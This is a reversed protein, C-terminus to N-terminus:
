AAPTSDFEFTVTQFADSLTFTEGEAFNTGNLPTLTQVQGTFSGPLQDVAIGYDGWPILPTTGASEIPGGPSGAITLNGSIVTVIGPNDLTAPVSLADLPQGYNPAYPNEEM